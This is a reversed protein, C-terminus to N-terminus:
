AERECYTSNPKRMSTSTSGCGCITSSSTDPRHAETLDAQSLKLAVDAQAEADKVQADNLAIYLRVLDM